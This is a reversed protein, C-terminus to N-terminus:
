CNYLVIHVILFLYPLDPTRCFRAGKCHPFWVSLPQLLIQRCFSHFLKVVHSRLNFSWYIHYYPVSSIVSKSSTPNSQSVLSTLNMCCTPNLWKGGLEWCQVFRIATSCIPPSTFMPCLLTTLRWAAYSRLGKRNEWMSYAYLSCQRWFMGANGEM